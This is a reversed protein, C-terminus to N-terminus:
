RLHPQYSCLPQNHTIKFPFLTPNSLVVHATRNNRKVIAPAVIVLSNPVLANDPNVSIGKHDTPVDVKVARESSPPITFNSYATLPNTIPPSSHSPMLYPSIDPIAHGTRPSIYYNLYAMFDSGLICTTHLNDSIIFPFSATHNGITFKMLYQRLGTLPTGNASRLNINCPLRKLSPLFTQVASKTFLSVASGTDWLAPLQKNYVIITCRPGSIRRLHLTM